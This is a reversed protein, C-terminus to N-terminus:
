KENKQKDTKKPSKTENLQSEEIWTRDAQSLVKDVMMRYKKEM